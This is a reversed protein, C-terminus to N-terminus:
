FTVATGIVWRGDKGLDTQAAIPYFCGVNLALYCVSSYRMRLLNNLIIGGEHYGNQPATVPVGVHQGSNNLTGWLVGYQLGLYPQSSYSFDKHALTWLKWDFSHNYIGQVFRSTYYDYPYLTMLGGFAYLSAYRADYRYGNGAFLRSIPLPNDSWLQGAEVMMRQQGVRNIHVQWTTAVVAQLYPITTTGAQVQGATIRAYSIPYKGPTPYYNGMFPVSHEGPAYRLKMTADQTTFSTYGSDATPQFTYAYMPTIRQQTASLQMSWFGMKKNLTASYTETRDVRQMLYRRLYNKDIASGLSIRGPDALDVDYAIRLSTERYKGAYLETFGGYKWEKDGFGYGVWGGLSMWKLLLENTQLGIGLRTKEYRNYSLLRALDVDLWGLSIRGAPAHRMASLLKDAKVKKGLSDLVHYTNLERVNLTDRRLTHLLSDTAMDANPALRVTHTKDARFTSPIDWRFSDVRSKGTLVLTYPTKDSKMQMQLIYNHSAPFWKTGNYLPVQQYQQEIRISRGLASDTANAVLHSIAYGASHIYVRGELYQQGQRPRFSITWITDTGEVLEDTLSIKYRSQYGNAVPNPYDKGNLNIFDTAAHFPLMDTILSTFSARRLGSIRTALVDEQLRGPRQWTRISYTESLFAHQARIFASLERSDAATDNMISDHVAIDGAMRYYLHCQWQTYKDPNHNNRQAVALAMIRKAKNVSPRITVENLTNGSAHLAVNIHSATVSVKRTTYGIASCELLSTTDNAPIIASFSGDLTAITGHTGNGWRITAFPIGEGTTADTIKGNINTQATAIAGCLLLLVFMAICRMTRDAQIEEFITNLIKDKDCM